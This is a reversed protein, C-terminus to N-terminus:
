FFSFYFLFHIPEDLHQILRWTMIYLKAWKLLSSSQFSHLSRFSFPQFFVILHIYPLSWCIQLLHLRQMHDHVKTAQNRKIKVILPHLFFSFVFFLFLFIHFFILTASTAQIRQEKTKSHSHMPHHYDLHCSHFHVLSQFITEKSQDRNKLHLM